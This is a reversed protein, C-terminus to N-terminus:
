DELEERPTADNSVGNNTTADPNNSSNNTNNNTTDANTNTADNNDSYTENYGNNYNYQSDNGYTNTQTKPKWKFEEIEKGELASTMFNRWVGTCDLSAPMSREVEPAGIWVACSLQPTYGVFYSDRYHETTGTKGAAVQGSALRAAAGTGGSGLVTELVDTAEGAVEETIVRTPSDKHEFFVNNNSDLIKTIAVAEHREGGTALVGYASAMELTNVEETGLTLSDYAYLESQIGMKHAVEIVAEPTVRDILHIYGTNASITTMSKITQNGYSANGYNQYRQGNITQPSTCDMYTSSSIGQELATVLTFTKFSSGPQRQAQTALNYKLAYYNKGGVLAVVYGTNPDIATMGVDLDSAMSARQTAAAAEAKEQLDIDLTTYVTLGGEFVEALSYKELLLDRVYTTFYPYAYIGEEAEEPAPNLGLPQAVAKEYQVESIDGATLMRQLVLNRRELCADPYEKPNMYTPSQPIAVLTAAEHLSVDSASKQFYNQAASEIGYCGDGYNITNLYMLLIEDKSYIDELDFALQMERVKRKISIENAEDSLFTFRVFQQTITSGGELGGGSLTTFIARATGQADVGDHEYFRVDETDVTGKVIYPNVEDLSSVPERNELYLEALLTTKDAAYIRTKRALNLADSQTISPLDSTWVDIIHFVGRVAGYGLIATALLIVVFAWPVARARAHRQKRRNNM